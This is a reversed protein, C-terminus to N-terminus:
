SACNRCFPTAPLLDLREESIREGCRVCDGYEGEALRLMAADIMRLELQAAAGLDELVEDGEREVAMEEWDKAEHTDFEAGIGAIRNMLDAQRAELEAKRKADSKM